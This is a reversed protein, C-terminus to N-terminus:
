RRAVAAIDKPTIGAARVTKDDALELLDNFRVSVAQTWRGSNKRWKRVLVGNAQVQEVWAIQRAGNFGYRISYLRGPVITVANEGEHFRGAAYARRCSQLRPHDPRVGNAVAMSFYDDHLAHGGDNLHAPDIRGTMLHLRVTLNHEAGRLLFGACTAPKAKGSEHCAFKETAMDYATGASHEFAKAPFLGDNTTKWPCGQCPTRRYADGGGGLTVVQHDQGAKRVRKVRTIPISM